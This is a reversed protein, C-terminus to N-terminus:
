RPNVLYFIFKQGGKRVRSVNLDVWLKEPCFIASSIYCVRQRDNGGCM